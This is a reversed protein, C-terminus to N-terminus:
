WVAQVPSDSAHFKEDKTLVPLGFKLATVAILRDAPDRHAWRLGAMALWLDSGVEIIEIWPFLNRMLDPWEDIPRRTELKGWLQKQRLEWFTIPNVVLRIGKTEAGAFVGAARESLKPSGELWWLLAHSDVIM